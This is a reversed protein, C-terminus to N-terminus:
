AWSLAAPTQFIQPSPSLYSTPLSSPSLSYSIAGVSDHTGMTLQLSSPLPLFSPFVPLHHPSLCNPPYISSSCPFSPEGEMSGLCDCAEHSCSRFAIVWCSFQLWAYFFHDVSTLKPFLPIFLIRLFCHRQIDNSQPVSPSLAGMLSECRSWSKLIWSSMILAILVDTLSLLRALCEDRLSNKEEM